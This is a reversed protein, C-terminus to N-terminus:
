VHPPNDIRNNKTAVSVGGMAERTKSTHQAQNVALMFITTYAMLMVVILILPLLVLFWAINTYGGRCILNLIFTWAIVKLVYVMIVNGTLSMAIMLIFLVLSLILYVYAPPCLTYGAIDM